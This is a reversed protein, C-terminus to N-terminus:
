ELGKFQGGDFVPKANGFTKQRLAEMDELTVVSRGQQRVYVEVRGKIMKQLFFPLRSLRTHSREDWLLNLDALPAQPIIKAGGKPTYLCWLDEDMYDGHSAFPRARCGGCLESYECDGCKGKLVPKRLDAFLSSTNWIHDFPEKRLNGVSVPMFPCPTVDGEPTIRCYHTGALCGGGEYGQAKTVPSDPNKEFAIRKFHPACRSRVLMGPFKKQVDVLYELVTEYQAPTIDSMEEGRGTCVLFFLNYVKAGKEYAFDMIKPIDQYNMSSATTHVQFQLGNRNCAEIGELAGNLAGPICRFSDHNNPDLSDVSISVGMVGNKKLDRVKEDSLLTGNTGVVVMMGKESGYRAIQSLDKRLLPEGGTLVLISAPNVRVMEDITKFCEETNLEDVAGADREGASLYCHECRLNCRRTLNWAILFPKFAETEVIDPTM